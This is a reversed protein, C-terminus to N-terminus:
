LMLERINVDQERPYYFIYLMNGRQDRSIHLSGIEIAFEKNDVVIHVYANFFGSLEDYDTYLNYIQKAIQHEIEDKLNKSLGFKEIINDALKSINTELYERYGDLVIEYILYEVDRPDVNYVEYHESPPRDNEYIVVRIPFDRRYPISVAIRKDNAFREGVINELEDISYIKKVTVM